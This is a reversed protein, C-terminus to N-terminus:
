NEEAVEEGAKKFSEKQSLAEKSGKGEEGPKNGERTEEGGCGECHCSGIQPGEARETEQCNEQQRIGGCNRKTSLL